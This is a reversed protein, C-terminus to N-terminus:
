SLSIGNSLLYWQLRRSLLMPPLIPPKLHWWREGMKVHFTMSLHIFSFNYHQLLNSSTSILLYSMQVNENGFQNAHSQLHLRCFWRYNFNSQMSQLWSKYVELHHISVHKSTCITNFEFVKEKDQIKNSGKACNLLKLLRVLNLPKLDSLIESKSFPCIIRKFM